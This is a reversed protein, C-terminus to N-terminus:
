SGQLGLIRRVVHASAARPRRRRRSPSSPPPSSTREAERTPRGELTRGDRAEGRWRRGRGATVFHGLISSVRVPAAPRLMLELASTRGRVAGAAGILMPLPPPRGPVAGFIRIAAAGLLLVVMLVSRGAEAGAGSPGTAERSSPVGACLDAGAGGLIMRISTHGISSSGCAYSSCRLRSCRACFARACFKRRVRDEGSM